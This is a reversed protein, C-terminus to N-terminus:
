SAQDVHVLRATPWLALALAVLPDDSPPHAADWLAGQYPRVNPVNLVNHVNVEPPAASDSHAQSEGCENEFEDFENLGSPAVILGYARGLDFVQQPTAQWFRSRKRTTARDRELRLHALIRGVRHSTAWKTAEEDDAAAKVEDAVQTASFRPEECNIDKITRIDKIDVGDATLSLIALVVEVTHDDALLDDREAQYARMVARMRAELGAVGHREFLRAVALLARWPEFERGIVGRELGLEGWVEAAEPLLALALTWLDDQLSRQDCPWREFDAPDVNGRRPDATRALPLVVSRSALVPDPLRIATFGRPCYANVWRTRWGGGAVPEKLPVSAGRRNGALLLDRKQPDGKKPDAMTEADDFLIAAGYDALDRLAPYSGSALVVEGLYSTHAWCTGWQTKGCGREGNPWPYPLVTFAPTFWTALSFCASLECMAQQDAMSHAFDIFYDYVAAVQLFVDRPEPREGRRYAKVAPARWEKGDRVPEALRVALGLDDIGVDAGPGFVTGDDRVIFLRQAQEVRPPKVDVVEGKVVEQSVTTRVWLWTAAYARGEVLALPRALVSPADDLLEVIPPVASPASSAGDAGLATLDSITHNLLYDDVGCKGGDAKPPLRLTIVEAGRRALHESIRALADRVARKQAVDSDFVIYVTRGNLAIYDFDALLVVGGFENKGKFNWVGLLATACVGHSALADAKKQGETLYLPISPDAVMPHCPLPVDLRATTGQPLEYKLERGRKDVRPIDPRFCSLPPGGGPPHVPFLLGPPRRQAKSFGADALEKVGLVSRARRERIVDIAIGSEIHLSSFHRALLESVEVSFLDSAFSASESGRPV